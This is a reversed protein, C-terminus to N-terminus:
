DFKEKLLEVLTDGELSIEIKNIEIFNDLTNIKLGPISIIFSYTRDERYARSLDISIESYNWGDINQPSQYDALIYAVSTNTLDLNEDVKKFKPNILADEFFSFMGNGSVILGDKELDVRSIGSTALSTELVTSFQKYSENLVLETNAIRITQLNEPYITTAELRQSDTYVVINDKGDEAINIKNVFSVIKQKTEIKKTIIDDNVRLEIKYVGEPLNPIRLHMKRLESNKSDDNSNGDDDLHRTDILLDNYYLNLDIRDADKNNNIDIFSFEFDM